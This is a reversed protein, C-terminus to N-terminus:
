CYVHSGITQSTETTRHSFEGAHCAATAKPPINETSKALLILLGNSPVHRGHVALISLLRKTIGFLYGVTFVYLRCWQCDVSVLLHHLTDSCIVAACEAELSSPSVDNKSAAEAVTDECDSVREGAHDCRDSVCHEGCLRVDGFCVSEVSLVAASLLDISSVAIMLCWYMSSAYKGDHLGVHERLQETSHRGHLLGSSVRVGRADPARPFVLTKTTHVHSDRSLDAPAARDVGVGHRLDAGREDCLGVVDVVSLLRRVSLRGRRASLLSHRLSHRHDNPPLQSRHSRAHHPPPHHAQPTASLLLRLHSSLLPHVSHVPSSAALIPDSRVM